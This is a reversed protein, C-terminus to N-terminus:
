VTGASDGGLVAVADAPHLQRFAVAPRRAVGGARGHGQTIGVYFLRREEEIKASDDFNQRSPLIGDECGVIFVRGFELGKACHLTMLNVSDAKQEWRDVDSALSIEELFDSLGKGSNEETWFSVANVLESVNDIRSEAEESDEGEFMTLYGTLSLMQTLVEAPSEHQAILDALLTFTERLDLLGKQGRGYAATEPDDM